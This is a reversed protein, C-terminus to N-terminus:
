AESGTPHYTNTIYRRYEALERSIRDEDWGAHRALLHAAAPACDLGLCRSLGIGTRRGFWHYQYMFCVPVCFALGTAVWLVSWGIAERLAIRHPHRHFVGLDISLLTIVPVGFGLWLWTM